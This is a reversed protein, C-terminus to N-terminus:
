INVQTSARQPFSIPLHFLPVNRSILTHGIHDKCYIISIRCKHKHTTIRNLQYLKEMLHAPQNGTTGGTAQLPVNNEQTEM